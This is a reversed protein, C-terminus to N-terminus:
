VTRCVVPSRSLFSVCSPFWFQVLPFM